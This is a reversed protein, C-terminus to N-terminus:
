NKRTTLIKGKYDVLLLNNAPIDKLFINKRNPRKIEIIKVENHYGLGFHFRPDESALYSSGVHWERRLIKGDPLTIKVVTGPDFGELELVIWNGPPNVNELLRASGGNVGM